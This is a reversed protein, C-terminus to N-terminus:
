AVSSIAAHISRIAADDDHKAADDLDVSRLFSWELVM